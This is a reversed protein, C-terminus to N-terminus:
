IINHKKAEEYLDDHIMRFKGQRFIMNNDHIAFVLYRFTDDKYMDNYSNDSITFKYFHRESRIDEKISIMDQFQEFREDYKSESYFEYVEDFKYKFEKGKIIIKFFVCETLNPYTLSLKDAINEYKLIPPLCELMGSVKIEIRETENNKGDVELYYKVDEEEIFKDLIDDSVYDEFNNYKKSVVEDIDIESPLIKYKEMKCDNLENSRKLLLDDISLNNSPIERTKVNLELDMNTFM